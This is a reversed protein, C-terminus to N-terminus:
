KSSKNIHNVVDVLDTLVAQATEYKGAGPGIITLEGLTDFKFRLANLNRSVHALPDSKDLPVPRVYARDKDAYAILKVVKDGYERINIGRIGRVEMKELEHRWGIVRSLIITKLAADIGDIDLSPDAEAYGLQQALRLADNFSLGEEYMKSLIFNTTGNLIGMFYEVHAGPLLNLINFSPTGAMVTGKFKVLRDYKRSLEMLEDYHFAIPGKNTTIVHKGSRLATTIYTFAPEGRSKVDLDTFECMVDADSEAILRPIEDVDVRSGLLKGQAADPLISPKPNLIRGRRRDIIETVVVNLRLEEKVKNLLEFFGQGVTGFGLILVKIARM